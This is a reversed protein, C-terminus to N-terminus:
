GQPIPRVLGLGLWRALADIEGDVGATMAATFPVDQHIATVVFRGGRHDARADLKGIFRDGYLIPLAYYGWRRLPVPKYMELLYEYDFIEALRGRDFVLQDLPSLLATRGRFPAGDLWAPDVKWTGPVGDVVAPEGAESRRVIGLAHLERRAREPLADPLPVPDDPHIRDALDWLRERKRRGAIAVQGLRAMSQLLQSVNKDNTWGSSRWPVVCTDPLDRSPLPGDRRLRDLIDRRCSDNARVWAAREEPIEVAQYLAVDQAARIRGDLEILRLEDLADRLDAPSYAAGLRSWAVLDANPAVAATPEIQLMTLHRVVTLLDPPRARTLLQARVAIRRADRKSLRHVVLQVRTFRSIM